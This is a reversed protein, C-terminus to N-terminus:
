TEINDIPLLNGVNKLCKSGQDEPYDFSYEVFHRYSGILM